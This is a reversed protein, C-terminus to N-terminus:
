RCWHDAVGGGLDPDHDRAHHRIRPVVARGRGGHVPASHARRYAFHHALHHHLRGARLRAVGGGTRTDGEELYRSINELVVIADDVVFGSAVTLAMLSLNDLSFGLLYMAGFTGVLSLPVSMSPIITARTSRIFVFIVLVVLIVALTLELEVDRVSARITVTRDTLVAVDITAPLSAQLQPLLKTIGDVVAIVNSGPQRQINLIVAPVTNMWAALRTNEAGNIVDAVGNLRVASSNKYAIVLNSYASADQQDNANITYSRSPGDPNGKPTNVNANSVTARM